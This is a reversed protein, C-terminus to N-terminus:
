GGGTSSRMGASPPTDMPPACAYVCKALSCQMVVMNDEAESGMNLFLQRYQVFVFLSALLREGWLWKKELNFVSVSANDASM